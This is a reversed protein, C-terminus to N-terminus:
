QDCLTRSMRVSAHMVVHVCIALLDNYMHKSAKWYRHMNFLLHIHKMNCTAQRIWLTQAQHYHAFHTARKQAVIQKPKNMATIYPAAAFDPSLERRTEGLLRNRRARESRCIECELSLAQEWSKGQKQIEPWLQESCKRCEDNGCTGHGKSWLYSGCVNTPFGHLFNYNDWSLCGERCQEILESYWPLM